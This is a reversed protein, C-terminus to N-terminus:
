DAVLRFTRANSIEADQSRQRNADRSSGPASLLYRVVPCEIKKLRLKSVVGSSLGFREFIRADFQTIGIVVCSIQSNTSAMGIAQM